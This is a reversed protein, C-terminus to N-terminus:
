GSGAVSTGDGTAPRGSTGTGTGRGSGATGAGIGGTLRGLRGLTGKGHTRESRCSCTWLTAEEVRVDNGRVCV